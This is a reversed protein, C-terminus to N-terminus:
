DGAGAGGAFDAGPVPISRLIARANQKCRYPNNRSAAPHCLAAIVAFGFCTRKAPLRILASREALRAQSDTCKGGHHV